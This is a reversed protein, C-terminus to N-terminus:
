VREAEDTYIGGMPTVFYPCSPHGFPGTCGGIVDGPLYTRLVTMERDRFVVKKKFRIGFKEIKEM